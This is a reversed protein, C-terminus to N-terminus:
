SMSKLGLYVVQNQKKNKKGPRKEFYVGVRLIRFGGISVGSGGNM